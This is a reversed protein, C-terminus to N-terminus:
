REKGGPDFFSKISTPASSRWIAVWSASRRHDPGRLRDIEEALRAGEDWKKAVTAKRAREWLLRVDEGRVAPALLLSLLVARGISILSRM